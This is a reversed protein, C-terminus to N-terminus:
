QQPASAPAVPAPTGVWKQMLSAKFMANTGTRSQSFTGNGNAGTGCTGTACGGSNEAYGVSAAGVTSFGSIGLKSQSDSCNAVCDKNANGTLFSDTTLKFLEDTRTVVQGTIKSGIGNTEGVGVGGSNVWGETTLGMGPM